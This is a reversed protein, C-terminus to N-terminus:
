KNSCWVVLGFSCRIPYKVNAGLGMALMRPASSSMRLKPLSCWPMVFERSLFVVYPTIGLVFVHLTSFVSPERVIRLENM